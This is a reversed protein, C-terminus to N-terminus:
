SNSGNKDGGMFNKIIRKAFRHLLDFALVFFVLLLTASIGDIGELIQDQRGISEALLVASGPDLSIQLSNGSVTLGSIFGDVTGAHSHLVDEIDLLIELDAAPFMDMEGDGESLEGEMDESGDEPTGSEETGPIEETETEVSSEGDTETDPRDAGDGGTDDDSSDQVSSRSAPNDSVSDDGGADSSDLDGTDAASDDTGTSDDYLDAYGDNM